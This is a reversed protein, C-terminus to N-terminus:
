IKLFTKRMNSAMLITEKVEDHIAEDDLRDLDAFRIESIDTRPKPIGSLIWGWYDAIVYHYKIQKQEDYIIRDILRVLGGIEIDLSVEERIERILAAELTEGLEVAGGPLSWQGKGPEKNRRALLVSDGQFLVAAVGVIPHEPYTRKMKERQGEFSKMGFKTYSMVGISSILDFLLVNAQYFQVSTM